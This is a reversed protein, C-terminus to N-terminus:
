CSLMAMHLISSYTRSYSYVISLPLITLRFPSPVALWLFNVYLCQTFPSPGSPYYRFCYSLCMLGGPSEALLFPKSVTQGFNSVYIRWASVFCVATEVSFTYLPCVRSIFLRPSISHLSVIRRHYCLYCTRHNCIGRKTRSFAM